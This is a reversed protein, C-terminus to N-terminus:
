PTSCSSMLTSTSPERAHNAYLERFFEHLSEQACLKRVFLPMHPPKSFTFASSAFNAAFKFGYSFVFHTRPSFRAPRGPAYLLTELIEALSLLVGIVVAVVIGFM